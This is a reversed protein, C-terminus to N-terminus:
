EEELMDPDGKEVLSGQEQVQQLEQEPLKLGKILVMEIEEETYVKNKPFIQGMSELQM